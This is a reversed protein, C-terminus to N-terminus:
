NLTTTEMKSVTSENELNYKIFDKKLQKYGSRTLTRMYLEYRAFNLFYEVTEKDNNFLSLWVLSPSLIGFLYNLYSGCLKRPSKPRKKLQFELIDNM